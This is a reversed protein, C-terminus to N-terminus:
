STAGLAAVVTASPPAAVPVSLPTPAKAKLSLVFSTHGAEADGVQLEGGNIDALMRARALGLGEGDPHTSFGRHFVAEPDGAPLEGPNHVSLRGERDDAVIEVRIPGASGHREANALLNEVIALIESEEGWVTATRPGEFRVDVGAASRSAVLSKVRDVLDFDTVTRAGALTLRRLRAAEARLPEALEDDFSGIAAEIALLGSRLDHLLDEVRAVENEIRERASVLEVLSRHEAMELDVLLGYLCTMGSVAALLAPTMSETASPELGVMVAVLELGFSGLGGFVELWRALRLGQILLVMSLVGAALVMMSTAVPSGPGAVFTSWSWVAGPGILVAAIAWAWPNAIALARYVALIGAIAFTTTAVIGFQAAAGAPPHFHGALELAGLASLGVIVAGFTAFARGVPPGPHSDTRNRTAGRGLLSATQILMNNSTTAGRVIAM